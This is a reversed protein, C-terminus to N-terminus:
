FPHFGCSALLIVFFCAVSIIPHNAFECWCSNTLLIEELLVFCLSSLCLFYNNSLFINLDEMFLNLPLSNDIVCRCQSNWSPSVSRVYMDLDESPSSVSFSFVLILSFFVALFLICVTIPSLLYYIKPSSEIIGVVFVGATDHKIQVELTDRLNNVVFFHPDIIGCFPNSTYRYLVHM